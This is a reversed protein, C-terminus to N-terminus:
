LVQRNIYFETANDKRIIKGPNGMVISNNPVDFNVFSNPAILVDNEITVAGVIVANNGIWVRDGITPSGKKSGRNTRGITVGTGINVNNGIKADANIIIRGFHGIYFGRGIQTEIPIQILSKNSLNRLKIKYFLKILRNKSLQAKRLTIIYKIQLSGFLMIKVINFDNGYYRYLDSKIIEHM